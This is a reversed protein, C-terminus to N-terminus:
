TQVGGSELQDRTRAARPWMKRLLSQLVFRRAAYILDAVEM